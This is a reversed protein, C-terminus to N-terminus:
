GGLAHQAGLRVQLVAASDQMREHARQMRVLQRRLREADSSERSAMERYRTSEMLFAASAQQLAAVEDCADSAAMRVSSMEPWANFALETLFAQPSSHFDSAKVFGAAFAIMVSVEVGTLDGGLDDIASPWVVGSRNMERSYSRVAGRLQARGEASCVNAPGRGASFLNLVEAAQAAPMQAPASCASLTAALALVLERKM